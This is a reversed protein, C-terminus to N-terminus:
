GFPGFVRGAVKGQGRGARKAEYLRADALALLAAAEPADGPWAAGGVSISVGARAATNGMRVAVAAADAESAAPLLVVFEDGGTRGVHDGARVSARLAAGLARLVEDGAAHGRADNIQKFRDIDLALVALPRGTREARRQEDALRAELERRSLVGTLGDTRVLEEVRHLLSLNHWVLGAQAVFAGVAAVHEDPIPSRSFVNDCVLMGLPKGQPRIACVLYDGAVGLAALTGNVPTGAFVVPGPAAEAAAIEDGEGAVLRTARVRAPFGGAAASLEHESLMQAITKEEVEIAEWIRHAEAASDPGLARSGLYAGTADDRVFLAARNMGLAHGSTVGSLMVHLAPGLETASLMLGTMTHLADLRAAAGAFGEGLDLLDEASFLRLLVWRAIAGLDAGLSAAGLTVWSAGSGLRIEVEPGVGISAVRLGGGAAALKLLQRAALPLAGPEPPVTAVLVVRRPLRAFLARVPAPVSAKRVVLAVDDPLGALAARASPPPSAIPRDYRCARRRTLGM